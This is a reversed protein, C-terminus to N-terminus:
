SPAAFHATSVMVLQPIFFAWRSGHSHPCGPQNGPRAVPYMVAGMFDLRLNSTAGHVGDVAPVTDPWTTTSTGGAFGVSAVNVAYRASIAGFTFPAMAM